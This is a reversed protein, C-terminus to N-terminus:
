SAGLEGAKSAKFIAAASRMRSLISKPIIARHAEVLSNLEFVFEFLLPRVESASHFDLEVVGSYVRKIVSHMQSFQVPRGADALKHSLRILLIASRILNQIDNTAISDSRQHLM